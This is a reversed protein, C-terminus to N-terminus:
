DSSSCGAGPNFRFIRGQGAAFAANGLVIGVVTVLALLQGEGVQVMAAAPCAGALAWGVGVILGGPISGRHFRRAPASVGRHAGLLPWAAAVVVVVGLFTLFLRLDRFTFMAHLQDWDAFGIRALAAGLALGLAGHRLVRSM